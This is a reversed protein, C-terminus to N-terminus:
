PLAQLREMMDMPPGWEKVTLRNLIRLKHCIRFGKRKMNPVLQLPSVCEPRYNVPTLVCTAIWERIQKSIIPRAGRSFDAQKGGDVPVEGSFIGGVSYNKVCGLTTGLVTPFADHITKALQKPRM